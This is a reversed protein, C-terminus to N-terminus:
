KSPPLYLESVDSLAFNLGKVVGFAKRIEPIADRDKEELADWINEMPVYFAAGREGIRSSVTIKEEQGEESSFCYKLREREVGWGQVILGQMANKKRDGIHTLAPFNVENIKLIYGGGGALPINAPHEVERWEDMSVIRAANHSVFIGNIADSVGYLKDFIDYGVDEAAGYINSFPVFYFKDGDKMGATSFASMVGAWVDRGEVAQVDIGSMRAMDAKGLINSIVPIDFRKIQIIM